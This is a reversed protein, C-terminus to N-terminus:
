VRVRRTGTWRSLARALACLLVDDIQTRYAQPVERLLAETEGAGLRVVVVHSEAGTTEGREEDVPLPVVEQAAQATWYGAEQAVGASRAHEALRQAWAQWSTTKTPLRVTEGRALQAYATELDELLIRWSVGDVVLHHIVMLLRRGDGGLDFLAVRLLPGRALDLSRQVQGAAAELAGVREGDALHALHVVQMQSREEVAAHTQTWAGGDDRRFRLRLADHHAELAGLARDLLAPDLAERPRLLLAQNFHNRSPHEQVFFWHQIPTLPAPGTVPGQAAEAPGSGAREVVEALRAVTPYEFLQRPAMRLGDRRARSVVQIALISDGGLDFFNDAVGVRELGLVETWVGCLLSEVPTTPAAFTDTDGASRPAPLARRDVKGHATLPLEELLVIAAPMMHEPLRDRLSDRIDRALRTPSTWPRGGAERAPEASRAADELGRRVAYVNYMGTGDLARDQDEVVEFGSRRLLSTVQELRGDRDHVELVVQRIKGWDEDEVGGLVDYEGKEVDIKLLDIREIGQERIVRSITTIECTVREGTLRTELLEDLLAVDVPGGDGQAHEHLLFSKVVEREERDDAFRGSLVSAHPYYTFTDTRVTSGLGCNFVRADIGHLLVNSRLAAFVAPIPEFAYVRVNGGFTGALLTFMGINAGVDFVCDGDNLEIGHRLYGQEVFIERYLFETEHPNLHVIGMGNPLEHRARGPDRELRLMEVVGGARSRDPVVYAVLRRDGSKGTHVVVVSERVAQHSAIAAEIEGPEIRFGRVKVQADVRGLYELEGRASWRVRDGSRYLRAGPKGSFPDPGFRAATMEPRGLYGRAVGAGGVHLEGPVGVPVLSGWEDLVRVALDPIARGVPSREGAEVDAWGIPRYTVHVTTETIGYMNVLRPAE